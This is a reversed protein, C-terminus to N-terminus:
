QIVRTAQAQLIVPISIGMARASRLNITLDYVQPLQVPLNGPSEGGLIRAMYIAARRYSDPNSAGYCLLGGGDVFDPYSMIGPVSAGLSLAGIAAAWAVNVSSTPSCVAQVGADRMWSFAQRYANADIPSPVVVDVMEVGFSSAADRAEVANTLVMDSANGLIGVRKVAPVAEHLLGLCKAGIPGANSNSGTVNGGPRALDGVIAANISGVSFVIPITKTAGAASGIMDNSGGIFILDPNAAVVARGLAVYKASDGLAAYREVVMTQGEILGRARLEGFLAVFVDAGTENMDSIPLSSHAMAIRPVKTAQGHALRSGAAAAAVGAVFSRRTIRM